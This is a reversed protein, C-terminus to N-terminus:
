VTISHNKNNWYTVSMVSRENLFYSRTSDVSPLAFTRNQRCRHDNEPPLLNRNLVISLYIVRIRSLSRTHSQIYSKDICTAARSLLYFDYWLQTMFTLALPVLYIYVFLLLFFFRLSRDVLTITIVYPTINYVYVYIYKNNTCLLRSMSYDRVILPSIKCLIFSLKGICPM